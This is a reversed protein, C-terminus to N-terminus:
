NAEPHEAQKTNESASVAEEESLWVLSEAISGDFSFNINFSNVEESISQQLEETLDSMVQQGQALVMESISNEISTTQAASTNFSLAAGLTILLAATIARRNFHKM